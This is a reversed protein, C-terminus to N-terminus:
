RSTDQTTQVTSSLFNNLSYSLFFSAVGMSALVVLVWGLKLTRNVNSSLYKWGHLSTCSCFTEFSSKAKAVTAKDDVVEASVCSDGAASVGDNEPALPDSVVITPVAAAPSTRRNVEGNSDVNTTPHRFSSLVL